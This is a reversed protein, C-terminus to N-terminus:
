VSWWILRKWSLHCWRNIATSLKDAQKTTPKGSEKCTILLWSLGFSWVFFSSFFHVQDPCGSCFRLLISLNMMMMLKFWTSTKPCVSSHSLISCQTTTVFASNQLFFSCRSHEFSATCHASTTCNLRICFKTSNQSFNEVGNQIHGFPCCYISSFHLTFAVVLCFWLQLPKFSTSMKLNKFRESFFQWEDATNYQTAWGCTSGKICKSTSSRYLVWFHTRGCKGCAWTNLTRWNLLGNMWQLASRCM